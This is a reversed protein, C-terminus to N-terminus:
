KKGNVSRDSMEYWYCNFKVVKKLTQSIDANAALDFAAAGKFLARRRILIIVDYVVRKPRFISM